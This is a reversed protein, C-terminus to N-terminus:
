RINFFGFHDLVMDQVRQLVFRVDKVKSTEYLSNGFQDFNKEMNLETSPTSLQM